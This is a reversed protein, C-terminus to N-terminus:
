QVAVVLSTPAAPKSSSTSGYQYAGLDWSGSTPRNVYSGGYWPAGGADYQLPRLNGTATGTLNTGVGVVKPDSSTPTYKNASTFGYTTAESSPMSYNNTATIPAGSPDYIINGPAVWINNQIIVTGLTTTGGRQNIYICNISACAFTNNAIYTTSTPYNQGSSIGNDVMAYAAGASLNWMVNNYIAGGPAVAVHQDASSDHVLNNYFKMGVQGTDEVDNTHNPHSNGNSQQVVTLAASGNTFVSDHVSSNGLSGNAYSNCTSNQVTAVNWFCTMIPVQGAGFGGGTMGGDSNNLTVHDALTFGYIGGSTGAVCGDCSFNSLPSTYGHILLNEAIMGGSNNYGNIAFCATPDGGATSTTCQQGSIEINDLTTFGINIALIVNQRYDVTLATGALDFKPRTWGAVPWTAGSCAAPSSFQGGCTGYYDPTGSIGGALIKMTFCAAPWTSGGKFIFQDGAQHSYSPAGGTGTCSAGTQMYPHTKWPSAQTGPNSNSGNGYDLYFTRGSQAAAPVALLITLTPILALIFYIRRLL